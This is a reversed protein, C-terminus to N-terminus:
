RAHRGRALSRPHVSPGAAGGSARRSCARITGSFLEDPRRRLLWRDGVGRGARACGRPTAADLARLSAGARARPPSRRDAASARWAVVGRLARRTARAWPLARSVRIGRARPSAPTFQRRRSSSSAARPARHWRGELEFDAAGRGQRGSRDDARRACAACLSPSRLDRTAGRCWSPM